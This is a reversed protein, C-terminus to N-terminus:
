CTFEHGPPMSLIGLFGCFLCDTKELVSQQLYQEVSILRM